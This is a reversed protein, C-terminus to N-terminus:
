FLVLALYCLVLSITRLVVNSSLLLIYCVVFCFAKAFIIFSEYTTICSYALLVFLTYFLVPLFLTFIDDRFLKLTLIIHRKSLKHRYIWASYAISFAIILFIMTVLMIKLWQKLSVDLHSFYEAVLVNYAGDNPLTFIKLIQYDTTMYLFLAYLGILLILNNIIRLTDTHHDALVRYFALLKFEVLYQFISTNRRINKENQVPTNPVRSKASLEIEKYYLELKHWQSADLLNNEKILANKCLRFSDRFDNATNALKELNISTKQKQPTTNCTKSYICNKIKHWMKHTTHSTQCESELDTKLTKFDCDIKANVLNLNGNFAAQSFNPPKEFKVGYFCAAKEFVVGQFCAQTKFIAERFDALHEFISDKFDVQNHFIFHTFIAEQTFHCAKFMFNGYFSFTHSQRLYPYFTKFECEIFNLNGYIHHASVIFSTISYNMIIYEECQFDQHIWIHSITGKTTDEYISQLCLKKFSVNKDIHLALDDIKNIIIDQMFCMDKFIFEKHLLDKSQHNERTFHLPVNIILTNNQYTVRGDHKFSLHTLFQWLNPPKEKCDKAYTNFENMTIPKM